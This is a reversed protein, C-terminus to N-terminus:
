LILALVGILGAIAVGSVSMVRSASSPRASTSTVVAATTPTGVVSGSGGEIGVVISATFDEAGPTGSLTM